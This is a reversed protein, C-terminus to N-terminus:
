RSCMSTKGRKWFIYYSSLCGCCVIPRFWFIELYSYMTPINYMSHIHMHICYTGIIYKQISCNVKHIIIINNQAEQKLVFKELDFLQLILNFLFCNQRYFPFYLLLLYFGLRETREAKFHVLTCVFMEKRELAKNSTKNYQSRFSELHAWFVKSLCNNKEIAYSFNNEDLGWVQGM